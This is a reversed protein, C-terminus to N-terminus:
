PKAEIAAGAPASFRTLEERAMPDSSTSKLIIVEEGQVVVHLELAPGCQVGTVANMDKAPTFVTCQGAQTGLPHSVQSGTEDTSQLFVDTGAGNPSLGWSLQIKKAIIPASGSGPTAPKGTGSSCAAIGLALVIRKM